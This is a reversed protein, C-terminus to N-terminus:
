IRGYTSDDIPEICDRIMCHRERNVLLLHDWPACAGETKIDM